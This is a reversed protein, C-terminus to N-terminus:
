SRVKSQVLMFRKWIFYPYIQLEIILITFKDDGTLVKKPPDSFNKNIGLTEFAISCKFDIKDSTTFKLSFTFIPFNIKAPIM